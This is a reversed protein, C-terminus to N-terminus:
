QDFYDEGLFLNIQARSSALDAVQEITGSGFIQKLRELTKSKEGHIITKEYKKQGNSIIIVDGGINSILRAAKQALLPHNTSNFIAITKHESRIRPDVMESLLADLKVTDVTLIDTGDPLKEKLAIDSDGLDIGDVKDFRVKSLGMKLRILELPTLDTKLNALMSILSFPNKRMEEVLVRTQTQAYQGQFNLFGDIPLGFQNALTIKLLNGGGVAQSEGLDYISSIMWSGFGKAVPLYTENPIDIITITQNQPSFSVLSVQKARVIVNINFDGNWYFNKELKSQWPSFLSKTLKVGQAFILLGLILSLAVLGWKTKKAIRKKVETEKWGRNSRPWGKKRAPM